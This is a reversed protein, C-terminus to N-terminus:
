LSRFYESLVYKSAEAILSKEEKSFVPEVEKYRICDEDYIISYQLQEDGTFFYEKMMEICKLLYNLKNILDSYHKLKDIDEQKHVKNLSLTQDLYTWYKYCRSYNIYIELALKSLCAMFAYRRLSENTIVGSQYKEWIDDEIIVSNSVGDIKDYQLDDVDVMDYVEECENDDHYEYYFIFAAERKLYKCYRKITLPKYHENFKNEYIYKFSYDGAYNKDNDNSFYDFSFISYPALQKVLRNFLMRFYKEKANPQMKVLLNNMYKCTGYLKGLDDPETYKIIELVIEPPLDTLTVNM